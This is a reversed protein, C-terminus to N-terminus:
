HDNIIVGYWHLPAKDMTTTTVLRFTVKLEHKDGQAM